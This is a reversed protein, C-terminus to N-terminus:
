SLQPSVSATATFQQGYKEVQARQEQFRKSRKTLSLYHKKLTNIDLWGRGMLGIGEGHGKYEGSVTELAIGAEWLMNVHLKDADHPRITILDHLLSPEIKGDLAQKLAGRIERYIQRLEKYGHLILKETTPNGRKEWLQKLRAPLDHFLMGIPCERWWIGGHVKSEWLDVSTFGNKFRDWSLGCLGSESAISGERSGTEVHLDFILLHFDLKAHTLTNRILQIEEGFLDKKRIGLKEKAIGTGLYQLNSKDRIQPAVQRISVLTDFQSGATLTAMYDAVDDASWHDPDKFGLFKWCKEATHLANRFHKLEARKARKIYAQVTEYDSTNLQRNYFMKRRPVLELYAVLADKSPELDQLLRYITTYEVGHKRAVTGISKNKLWVEELINFIETEVDLGDRVFEAILGPRGGQSHKGKKKEVYEVFQLPVDVNSTASITKLEM